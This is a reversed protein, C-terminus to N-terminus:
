RRPVGVSGKRLVIIDDRTVMLVTSEKGELRGGDIVLDVRKGLQDMAERATRASPKGSLNASTGVLTGGCARILGVCSESGPVRVGLLGTGQHLKEPMQRALPAVITLAGPWFRMALELAKPSLDVLAQAESLSACLIPVSKAGRGKVAFLREVATPNLPDCGLGYVTDTPYVLM